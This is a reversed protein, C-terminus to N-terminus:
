KNTAITRKRNQRRMVVRMLWVVSVLLLGYYPLPPLILLTVIWCLGTISALGIGRPNRVLFCLVLLGFGSLIICGFWIMDPIQSFPPGPGTETRIKIGMLLRREMIYHLPLAIFEAFATGFKMEGPKASNFGMTRIILRTSNKSEPVIEFSGWNELVLSRGDIVSRVPFNYPIIALEDDITGRVLDGPKLSGFEAAVPNLPRAHYGMAEEIFVYSFFGARDAGLQSLWNWVEKAPAKITIGRTSQIVASLDDGPLAMSRESTTTGWQTIATELFLFYAALQISVVILFAGLTRLVARM